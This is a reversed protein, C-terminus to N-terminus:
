GLVWLRILDVGGAEFGDVAIVDGPVYGEVAPRNREFVQGLLAVHILRVESTDEAVRNEIM